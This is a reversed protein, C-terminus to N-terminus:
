KVFSKVASLVKQINADNKNISKIPVIQQNGLYFSFGDNLQSEDIHMSIITKRYNIAREIEKEVWESEQSQESLLLLVCSCKKIADNIVHAYKSGAPIDYPAMWASIGDEKVLRLAAEAYEQNKTSYSIFVYGASEVAKPSHRIPDSSEVRAISEGVFGGEQPLPVVKPPPLLTEVNEQRVIGEGVFGGEQPLPVVKPPPLLTEVNEPRAISEGVFGGEQPLPVVKPPPLLTEVNEARVISEAISEAHAEDLEARQAKGEGITSSTFEVSRVSSESSKEGQKKNVKRWIVEKCGEFVEPRIRFLSLIGDINEYEPAIIRANSCGYFAKLGVTVFGARGTLDVGAFSSCGSFAENGFSTVSIPINIDSLSKCGSFAKGGIEAVSDPLRVSKLLYCCFFAGDPIKTVLAPIEVRQLAKCFSFAYSGIETLLPSLTVNELADCGSFAARAISKVSAPIIFGTDRKGMAYRLLRSGDKSYLDGNISKFNKNGPAVEISTLSANDDFVGYEGISTVGEHIIIKEVASCRSFAHDGISTVSSPIRVVADRGRYKELKGNSIKFDFISM